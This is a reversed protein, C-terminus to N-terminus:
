LVFLVLRHLSCRGMWICAVKSPTERGEGMGDRLWWCLIRRCRMGGYVMFGIERMRGRQMRRARRRARRMM